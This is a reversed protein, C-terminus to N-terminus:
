TPIVEYLIADMITHLNHEPPRGIDPVGARRQDRRTTLIPEILEWHADSLDGPYRLRGTM